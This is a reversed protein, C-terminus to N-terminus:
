KPQAALRQETRQVAEAMVPRAKVWTRHVPDEPAYRSFIEGIREDYALRQGAPGTTLDAMVLADLLASDEFPFEALEDSMGREVAEFRAGSHHAVLNVIVEPWEQERLYRAGDLPHFKTHGIEPAYGIDHLWAAAVLTDRDQPPVAGSLESARAAVAQVHEWRRGLPAVFHEATEAAQQVLEM